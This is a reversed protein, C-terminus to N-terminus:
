AEQKLCPSSLGSLDAPEALTVCCLLPWLCPLHHTVTNRCSPSLGHPMGGAKEKATPQLASALHRLELGTGTVEQIYAELFDSLGQRGPTKM